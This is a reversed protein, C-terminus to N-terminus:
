RTATGYESCSAGSKSVKASFARTRFLNFEDPFIMAIYGTPGPPIASATLLIAIPLLTPASILVIHALAVAALRSMSTLALSKNVGSYPEIRTSLSSFRSNFVSKTSPVTVFIPAM